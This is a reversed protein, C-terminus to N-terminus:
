CDSFPAPSVLSMFCSSTGESLVDVVSICEFLSRAEKEDKLKRTRDIRNPIVDAIMRVSNIARPDRPNWQNSADSM